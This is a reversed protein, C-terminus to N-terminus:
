VWDHIVIPEQDNLRLCESSEHSRRPDDHVGCHDLDDYIFAIHKSTGDDGVLFM